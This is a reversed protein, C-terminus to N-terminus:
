STEDTYYKQLPEHPVNHVDLLVAQLVMQFGLFLPVVSIMVTGTSTIVGRAASLYWKTAGFGVGFLMLLWGIFFLLSFTSFDRIYYHWVIRRVYARFLRGPFQVLTKLLSLKSVENGYHTPLLVDKVLARIRYLNCLMDTEFFYDHSVRDLDILRLTDRHIATFGNIPDFINWYGSAMKVLYSLGMNGILRVKPMKKLTERDHFRFGKTYDAKGEIIPKILKAIARPDMQGDSDVKVVVDANNELARRYAEITAGGVGLNKPNRILELRSDGVDLAAQATSDSSHDDVVIIKDVIGPVCRIVDAIHAAENYAPMVVFVKLGKTM